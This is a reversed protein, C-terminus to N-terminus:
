HKEGKKDHSAGGSSKAAVLDPHPNNVKALFTTRPRINLEGLMAYERDKAKEISVRSKPDKINGFTIAGTACSQECAAVVEGDRISRGENRATIGASKIRQICYSCKEMVGRNRVSVEPNFQLKAVEYKPKEYDKHYDFYNFRRVKYPCNNACYRTGVCRNYAMDNTGEEGHTTAAVPCVQECPANECHMCSVPQHVLGPDEPDGVYYRDIRMWHMERGNLVQEKGVVPVNNESTCAVLCANCGMCKNLDVTMGWQHEGPYEVRDWLSQLKPHHVMHKAFDPHEKYHDLDTERILTEARRAREDMGLTDIAWHDQTSALLFSEGTPTVQVETSLWMSGQERLLYSNFGAPSVGQSVSGGVVGAETRGNGLALALSGPAQGPQILVAVELQREGVKLSVLSENKVGLAAATAPGILLANDWTLKTIFDPTEQLWSNNAYRGDRLRTDPLFVLELKDSGTPAPVPAPTEFARLKPMLSEEALRADFGDHLSKAWRREFAPGSTAEGALAAYSQRVIERADPDAQGGLRALLELPSWGNWIPQIQPQQLLYGGRHTMGDGWSELAHALPLHWDCLRATEDRYSGLHLKTAVKSLAQGFGLDVPADYAPNSDLVVLSHIQGAKMATVLEALETTGQAQIPLMKRLTVIKSFAGLKQNLRHAIAHVAPPQCEGVIVVSSGKHAALDKGLAELFRKYKPEALVGELKGPGGTALSELALLFAHMHESRLPLRHDATGGTSSYSSEIAYLRNMEGDPDRGAAFARSMRMSDPHDQLANSDLCVIRKVQDLDYVPELAEGFALKAGEITNQRTLPEWTSWRMQPHKGALEARLRALSPSSSSRSLVAFGAGDGLKEAMADIAASIEAWECNVLGEAGARAPGRSRDPDYLELIQAQAQSNSAGLCAPHDPNGEVKTPRGETSTILLPLAVGEFDMCTAYHVPVGPIRGEPRSKFPLVYERDMTCATTGALAVSAGMLQLFRRRSVGEPADTAGEPFERALAEQFVSSQEREDLSRWYRPKESESSGSGDSISTPKMPPVNM